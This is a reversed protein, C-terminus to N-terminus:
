HEIKMNPQMHYMMHAQDGGMMQHSQPHPATAIMQHIDDPHSAQPVYGQHGPHAYSQYSAAVPHHSHHHGSSSTPPLVNVPVSVHRQYESPHPSPHSTPTTYGSMQMPQSTVLQTNELPYSMARANSDMNYPNAHYSMGNSDVAHLTADQVPLSVPHHQAHAHPHSNWRVTDPQASLDIAPSTEM